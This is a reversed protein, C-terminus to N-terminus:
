ALVVVDVETLKKTLPAVLVAVMAVLEVISAAMVASLVAAPEVINELSVVPLFITSFALEATSTSSPWSRV